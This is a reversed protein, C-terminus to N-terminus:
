IRVATQRKNEGIYELCHCMQKLRDVIRPEDPQALANKSLNTTVILTKKARYFTDVIDFVREYGYSTNRETGFDDLVIVDFCCLRQMKKNATGFAQTDSMIKRISTFHCRVGNSMLHNLLAAALYSKGVGTKGYIILGKKIGAAYNNLFAKIELHITESCVLKDLTANEFMAFGHEFCNQKLSAKLQEKNRENVEHTHVIPFYVNKGGVEYVAEKSKGCIGCYILGDQVFDGDCFGRCALDEMM